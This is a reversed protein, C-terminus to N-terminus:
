FTIEYMGQYGSVQLTVSAAAVLGVGSFNARPKLPFGGAAERHLNEFAKSVLIDDKGHIKCVTRLKHTGVM